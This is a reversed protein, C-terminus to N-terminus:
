PIIRIRIPTGDPLNRIQPRIQVSGVHHNTFSDLYRLNSRLDAGGLQLEHRHDLQMSGDTIRRILRRSLEPNREGYQEHIRRILDQQHRVARDRNRPPLPSHAKFLKNEDGLKKLAEAKRMFQHKPMGPVHRLEITVPKKPGHRRAWRFFSGAAKFIGRASDRTAGKPLTHSRRALVGGGILVILSVLLRPFLSAQVNRAHEAPAAGTVGDAM